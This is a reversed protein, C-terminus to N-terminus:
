TGEDERLQKMVEPDVFPIDITKLDFGIDKLRRALITAFYSADFAAKKYGECTENHIDIAEQVKVSSPAMGVITDTHECFSCDIVTSPIRRM